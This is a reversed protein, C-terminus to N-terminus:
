GSGVKKLILKELLRPALARLFYMVRGNLGTFAIRKNRALARILLAAAESAEMAGKEQEESLVEGDAALGSSRLGTQVYGPCFIHTSIHNEKLEMSLTEMFAHGAAKSAAYAYRGPVGFLGTPTSVLMIQAGRAAKLLPLFIRTVETMAFFNIEMTKRLVAPLSQDFRGHATIGANNILVDLKGSSQRVRHEAAMLDAGSEIDCALALARGGRGEIESAVRELDFIRRALLYVTAGADALHLATSRGIGSSAGTVLVQKGQWNGEVNM